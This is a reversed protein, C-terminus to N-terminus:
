FVNKKNERRKQEKLRKIIDKKNGQRDKKTKRITRM